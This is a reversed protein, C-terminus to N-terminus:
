RRLCRRVIDATSEPLAFVDTATEGNLWADSEPWDTGVPKAYWRGPQLEEVDYHRQPFPVQARAEDESAAEIEAITHPCRYDAAHAKDDCVIHLAIAKIM